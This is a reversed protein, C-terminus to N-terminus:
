DLAPKKRQQKTKGRLKKDDVRRRQAAKTPTTAIRRKPRVAAEALIDQLRTMAAERNRLQSRHNDAFLILEDEKNIRNRQQQRLRRLVDRALRLKNVHVRLEVATSAKNVHQGGPGSAHVFRFELAEEPIETTSMCISYGSGM